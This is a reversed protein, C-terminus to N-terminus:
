RLLGLRGRGHLDLLHLVAEIQDSTREIPARRIATGRGIAIVAQKMMDPERRADGIRNTRRQRLLEFREFAPRAEGTVRRAPGAAPAGLARPLPLREGRPQDGLHAVVVERAVAEAM